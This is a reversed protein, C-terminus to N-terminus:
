QLSRAQVSVRQHLVMPATWDLSHVCSQRVHCVSVMQFRQMVMAKSDWILHPAVFIQFHCRVQQYPGRRLLRHFNIAIQRRRGDAMSNGGRMTVALSSQLPVVPRQRRAAMSYVSAVMVLKYTGM